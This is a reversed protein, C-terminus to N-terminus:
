GSSWWPPGQLCTVQHENVSLVMSNFLFEVNGAKAQEIFRHAYEPGTLEEKFLTLGFGPHICQQLIGGPKQDREIIIVREAGENKAAVAAALGAPGAGIVAVDCIKKLM